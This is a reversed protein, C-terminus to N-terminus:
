FWYLQFGTNSVPLTHHHHSARWLGLPASPQLHHYHHYGTIFGKPPLAVYVDKWIPQTPFRLGSTWADALLFAVPLSPFGPFWGDPCGTFLLFESWLLTLLQVRSLGFQVFTVVKPWGVLSLSYTLCM